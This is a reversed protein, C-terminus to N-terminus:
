PSLFFCQLFFFFSKLACACGARVDETTVDVAAGANLLIRACQERNLLAAFHLPAWGDQDAAHVSFARQSPTGAFTRENDVLLPLVSTANSDVAVHFLTGRHPIRLEATTLQAAPTNALLARLQTVDDNMVAVVVPHRTPDPAAASANHGIRSSM